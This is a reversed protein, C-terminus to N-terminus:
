SENHYIFVLDGGYLYQERDEEQVVERFLELRFQKIINKSLIIDNLFYDCSRM